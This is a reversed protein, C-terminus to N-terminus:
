SRLTVLVIGAAAAGLTVAAVCHSLRHTRLVPLPLLRDAAFRGPGALALSVAAILLLLEFEIGAPGFFGGGWEVAIVNLMIGVIGAAALPTLLGIVLGLGCLTETLGAVVAMSKAASYGNGAFFEATGDLGNGDFWGFLKQSGHAAMTLGVGWRLALLGLDSGHQTPTPLSAADSHSATRTSTSVSM